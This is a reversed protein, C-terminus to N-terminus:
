HLHKIWHHDARFHGLVEQLSTVAWYIVFWPQNQPAQLLGLCSRKGRGTDSVFGYSPISQLHCPNRIAKRAKRPCFLGAPGSLCSQELHLSPPEWCGDSGEEPIRAARLWLHSFSIKRVQTFSSFPAKPVSVVRNLREQGLQACCSM